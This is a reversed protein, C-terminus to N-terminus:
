IMTLNQPYAGQARDWDFREGQAPTKLTLGTPEVVGKQLDRLWRMADDYLKVRIEPINRPVAVVYAHYLAIDQVCKLLSANRGSGTAGFIAATNFRHALYGEAISIATNIAVAFATAAKTNIVTVDDPPAIASLESTEIYPM